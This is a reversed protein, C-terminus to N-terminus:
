ISIKGVKIVHKDIDNNEKTVQDDWSIVCLVGGGWLLVVIIYIFRTTM